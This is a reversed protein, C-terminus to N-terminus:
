NRVTLRQLIRNIQKLHREGHYITYYIWEARTLTGFLHHEYAECTLSLDNRSIFDMLFLRNEKIKQIIKDKETFQGTPVIPGMATLKKDLDWFTSRIYKVKECPKRKTTPRTAKIVIKNVLSELLILHEGINSVSWSEENPKLNFLNPDIREFANFLRQNAQKLEGTIQEKDIM